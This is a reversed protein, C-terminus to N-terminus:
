VFAHSQSNLPDIGFYYIFYLLAWTYKCHIQRWIDSLLFHIHGIFYLSEFELLHSFYQFSICPPHCYSWNVCFSHSLPINPWPGACRTDWLLPFPTISLTYVGSINWPASFSCEALTCHSGVGQSNPNVVDPVKRTLVTVESAFICFGLFDRGFLLAVVLTEGASQSTEM